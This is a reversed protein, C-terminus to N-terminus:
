YEYYNNQFFIYAKFAPNRELLKNKYKFDGGGRIITPIRSKSHDHAHYFFSTTEPFQDFVFSSMLEQNKDYSSTILFQNTINKEKFDFGILSFELESNTNNVFFEYIKKARDLYETKLEMYLGIKGKEFEINNEEKLEGKEMYIFTKNKGFLKDVEIKQGNPGDISHKKDNLHVPKGTEEDLQWEDIQMGDPDVLNVPNNACYAYPSLNPYKDSLPDVSLWSIRESDYYRAGYYNYDTEEDKEKGNFKYPSAFTHPTTVDIWMEGYPLYNLVQTIQVADNTIYSSSGLHDTHYFFAPEPDNRGLKSQIAHMLPPSPQILPYVDLCKEFTIEIGHTQLNKQEIYSGELPTAHHHIIDGPNNTFGGGIKSCIRKGEEFYHKTYGQKNITIIDSAYLTQNTLHPYYSTVGNQVSTVTKGVFKLSRNGSADYNYYASQGSREMFGQLRSDETWCLFRDKSTQDNKHFVMNGKIDWQYKNPLGNNVDQVLIM